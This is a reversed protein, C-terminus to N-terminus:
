KQSFLARNTSKTKVPSLVHSSAANKKISVEVDIADVGEFAEVNVGILYCTKSDDNFHSAYNRDAMQDIAEQIDRNFKFEIVVNSVDSKIFIDARGNATCVEAQAFSSRLFVTAFYLMSQYFKECKEYLEQPILTYLDQLYKKLAPTDKKAPKILINIMKKYDNDDNYTLLGVHEKKLECKKAKTCSQLERLRIKGRENEPMFFIIGLTVIPKTCDKISYDFTQYVDQIPQGDMTGCEIVLIYDDHELATTITGSGEDYFPEKGSLINCLVLLLAQYFKDNKIHMDYQTKNMFDSLIVNAKDLDGNGIGVELADIFERCYNRVKQVVKDPTAQIKKPRPSTQPPTGQTESTRKMPFTSGLCSLSLLLIPLIKYNKM